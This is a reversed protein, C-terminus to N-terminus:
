SKPHSKPVLKPVVEIGFMIQSLNPPTGFINILNGDLAGVLQVGLAGDGGVGPGGDLGDAVAGPVEDDGDVAGVESESKGVAGVAEIEVDRQLVM